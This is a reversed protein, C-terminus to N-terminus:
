FKGKKKGLFCFPKRDLRSIPTQTGTESEKSYFVGVWSKRNETQKSKRHRQANGTPIRVEM